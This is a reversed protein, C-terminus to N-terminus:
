HTVYGPQLLNGAGASSPFFFQGNWVALLSWSYNYLMLVIFIQHVKEEREETEEDEGVEEGEKQEEKERKGQYLRKKPDVM